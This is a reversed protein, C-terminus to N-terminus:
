HIAQWALKHAGQNEKEPVWQNIVLPYNNQLHILEILLKPYATSFEKGLSDSLIRSDTFFMITESGDCYDILAKFGAIAALFEAQHNDIHDPLPQHIQIQTQNKIILIGAGSKQDTMRTAADSYLKM